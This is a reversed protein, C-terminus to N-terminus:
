DRNTDRFFHKVSKHINKWRRKEELAALQDHQRDFWAIEKQLKHLSALRDPALEGAEVAARVACGPEHRHQCDRFRCGKALTEIEDFTRHVGEHAEWLQLERMGPTDIVMGGGNPIFLLERHTTIHRGRGDHERVASTPLLDTGLLRNILTSKGFGSSGLLAVTRRSICYGTVL